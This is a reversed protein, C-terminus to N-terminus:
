GKNIAEEFALTFGHLMLEGALEKADNWNECDGKGKLKFKQDVVWPGLGDKQAVMAITIGDFADVVRVFMELKFLSHNGGRPWNISRGGIIIEVQIEGHSLELEKIM